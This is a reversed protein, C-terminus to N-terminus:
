RLDLRAARDGGGMHFAATARAAGAMSLGSEKMPLPIRSPPLHFNLSAGVFILGITITTSRLGPSLIAAVSGRHFQRAVVFSFATVM